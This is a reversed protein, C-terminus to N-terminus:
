GLYVSVWGKVLSVGESDSDSYVMGADLLLSDVQILNNEHLSWQWMNSLSLSYKWEWMTSLFDMESLNSIPYLRECSTHHLCLCGTRCTEQNWTKWFLILHCTAEFLLGDVKCSAYYALTQCGTVMPEKNRGFYTCLVFRPLHAMLSVHITVLSLRWMFGVNLSDQWRKSIPSKTTAFQKRVSFHSTPRTPRMAM